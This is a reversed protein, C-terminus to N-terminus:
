RRRPPGPDRAPTEGVPKCLKVDDVQEITEYHRHFHALLRQMQENDLAADIDYMWTGVVVMAAEERRFARALERRGPIDYRAREVADLRESVGVAFQNEMGPHPRRGSGAVYGPWFAFVVDDPETGAVIRQNVRAYHDLQWHAATPLDHRILDLSLWALGPALVAAGVVLRRSPWALRGIGFAAAPLLMVPLGGTFYQMYVPDPLLCTATYVVALLLGAAAAPDPEDGDRSRWASAEWVALALLLLLGPNSMLSVGLTELAAVARQWSPANELASFRLDHYAVNNFWFRDPDGTWFLWVPLLGLAAGVLWSLAASPRRWRAVLVFLVAPAFAAPAFLLRGSAAIGLAAGGGLAWLPGQRAGATARSCALLAAATAASTFAYTKVTTTWTLLEPGLAILLGAAIAVGPRTALRTALWMAMLAVAATSLLVSVGRLWPLQPAGILSAAPAYVYPLLPAQPYFFDVYPTKGEAVLRAALGYYGEDGDIPRQGAFWGAVLLHLVVVAALAYPLRSRPM